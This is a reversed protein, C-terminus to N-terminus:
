DIFRCTDLDRLDNTSLSSVAKERLDQCHWHMYQVREKAREQAQHEPDPPPIFGAAFVFLVLLFLFVKARLSIRAFARYRARQQKAAGQIFGILFAIFKM